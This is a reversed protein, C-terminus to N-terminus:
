KCDESEKSNNIWEAAEKFALLQDEIGLVPIQTIGLNLMEEVSDNVTFEIKSDTLKTKLIKCKPCDTSYLIPKINIM